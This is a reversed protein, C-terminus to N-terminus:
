AAAHEVDREAPQQRPRYGRAHDGAGHRGLLDLQVHAGATGLERSVVHGLEVPYRLLASRIVLGRASMMPPETPPRNAALMNRLMPQSASTNSRLASSSVPRPAPMLVCGCNCSTVRRSPMGNSSEIPM